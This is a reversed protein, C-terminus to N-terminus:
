SKKKESIENLADSCYPCEGDKLIRLRENREIDKGNLWLLEPEGVVKCPILNKDPKAKQTTYIRRTGSDEGHDIYFRTGPIMISSVMIM